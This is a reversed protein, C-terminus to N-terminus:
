ENKPTHGYKKKYLRIFFSLNSFGSEYAAESVNYEGSQLKNRANTLRISNRYDIPSIGMHEHFLKRFNTEGMNCLEAYYSVKKNENWHRIMESIAPQLKKYKAPLSAHNEDIKWLLEYLCSLSYFPHCPNQKELPHFFAGILERSDPLDIKTPATLYDPVEGSIVKFEVIQIKTNEELYTSVYSSGQPVFILEGEAACLEEVDCDQFSNMMKGSATYIFGHKWRGKKFAHTHDKPSSIIQVDIEGVRFNPEQLYYQFKM